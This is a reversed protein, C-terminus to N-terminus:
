YKTRVVICLKPKKKEEDTVITYVHLEKRVINFKTDNDGLAGHLFFM